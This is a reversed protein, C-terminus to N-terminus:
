DAVALQQVSNRGGTELTNPRDVTFGRSWRVDNNEGQIRIEDVTDITVQNGNGSVSIGVCQGTITVINTDGVLEVREGVECEHSLTQNSGTLQAGAAAAAEADANANGRRGIQFQPAASDFAERGSLVAEGTKRSPLAEAPDTLTRPSDDEFAEEETQALAPAAAFMAMAIFLATTRM